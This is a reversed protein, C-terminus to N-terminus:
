CIRWCCIEIWPSLNPFFIECSVQFIWWWWIKTVLFILITVNMTYLRWNWPTDCYQFYMSWYRVNKTKAFTSRGSKAYEARYKRKGSMTDCKTKNNKSIIISFKQKTTSKFVAITKGAHWFYKVIVSEIEYRSRSM